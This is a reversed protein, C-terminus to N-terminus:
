HATQADGIPEASELFEEVEELSPIGRRGGLARCKLAATASAVQMIRALEWGRAVGLAFAGHYVDGCGTTDVVPM